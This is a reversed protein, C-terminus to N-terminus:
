KVFGTGCFLANYLKHIGSANIIGTEDFGLDPLALLLCM